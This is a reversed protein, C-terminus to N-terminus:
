HAGAPPYLRSLVALPLTVSTMYVPNQQAAGNRGFCEWPAGFKEGKRFDQARLHQVYRKLVEEALSQDQDRLAAVLWGTPTHWYAGNQYTNHPAVSNEWATNPAADQDTPLHRVAGRYEITGDRVAQVVSARAHEARQGPLVKMHLALLTGWVDAQGCIGTAGKLWGESWGPPSFVAPLHAIIRDAIQKFGAALDARDAAQCLETLERAAQYRLLTPVLLAGTMFVADCFGFGVAHRQTGTTAAGTIEDSAPAAFAKILRDLVPL